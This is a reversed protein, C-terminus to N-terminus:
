SLCVIKEEGIDQGSSGYILKYVSFHSQEEFGIKISLYAFIDVKKYIFSTKNSPM